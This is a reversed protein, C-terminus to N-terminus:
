KSNLEFQSSFHESTVRIKRGNEDFNINWNVYKDVQLEKEGMLIGTELNYIWISNKYRYEGDIPDKKSGFSAVIALIKVKPSFTFDFSSFYAETTKEKNYTDFVCFGYDTLVFLQRGNELLKFVKPSKWSDEKFHFSKVVKFKRKSSFLFNGVEGIVSINTGGGGMTASFTQNTVWFYYGAHVCGWTYGIDSLADVLYGITEGSTNLIPHKSEYRGNNVIPFRLQGLSKSSESYSTDYWEKEALKKAPNFQSESDNFLIEFNSM